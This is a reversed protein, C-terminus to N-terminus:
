ILEKKLIECIDKTSNIHALNHTKEKMSELLTESKLLNSIVIDPSDNKRLWIAVGSQELFEANEEEQGPIPNIVLIPLSSALSESITLGGPKTVVLSSISMVEPVKDIFEYIKLSSSDELTNALDKFAQNMKPNKGSIAVIQYKDLYHTLTQLIEVTRSKGLGFEGGGFFLITKKNPSLNFIKYIEDKNFNSSFKSSLPIGTVFVKEDPIKFDNVLSTKMNDNSVFFYDGYENGVLWQDHPAFDTLITALKCNIKGKRKLYSTMQTGFPHTSIVLDPSYEEFLSKLKRSIVKNTTSSIKSLAGKESHYYVQKWAWPAKKAMEKYAGTTIKDLAKNIYKICDVINTEVNEFNNDIYEKISKAASLHGGGYAAYLILIKKM